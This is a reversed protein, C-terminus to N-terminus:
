GQASIIWVQNKAVFRTGSSMTEGRSIQVQVVNTSFGLKGLTTMASVMTEAVVSNVVIRGQPLLRQAVAELIRSLDIGGGGVFVRNPAPLNEIDEPFKAKIVWIHEVGFKKLNNRIQGVRKENQEIAIIQGRTVFIASEIAMSGSGAGLDWFVHDPLLRLKSLSVARVEAKTILGREHEYWSEPAGTFLPYVRENKQRNLLVVANPEKFQMRSAGEPSILRVSEDPEGMREFVWMRCDCSHTRCLFDGVWAPNRRPDTLIFVPSDKRLARALEIQHEKGHLSVVIAQDWPMKLRSFCAAMTSINPYIRVCDKGLASVLTRGIGFFLPDGSALVVVRKDIMWQRIDEVVSNLPSVIERKEGPYNDFWALHRRGGVLIDSDYIIDLYKRSLDSYSQGSGIIKVPNM